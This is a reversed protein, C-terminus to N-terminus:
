LGNFEWFLCVHVLNPYRSLFKTNLPEYRLFRVNRAIRDMRFTSWCSFGTGIIYIHKVTPSINKPGDVLVWGAWKGRQTGAVQSCYIKLCMNGLFTQEADFFRELSTYHYSKQHFKKLQCWNQAIPGFYPNRCRFKQAGKLFVKNSVYIVLFLWGFMERCMQLNKQSDRRVIIATSEGICIKWIGCDFLWLCGTM